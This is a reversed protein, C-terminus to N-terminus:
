LVYGLHREGCLRRFNAPRDGFPLRLASQILQMVTAALHENNELEGGSQLM